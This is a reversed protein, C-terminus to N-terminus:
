FTYSCLLTCKRFSKPKAAIKIDEIYIGGVECILDVTSGYCGTVRKLGDTGPPLTSFIKRYVKNLNSQLVLCGLTYSETIIRQVLSSLLSSGIFILSISLYFLVSIHFFEIRHLTYFGFSKILIKNM